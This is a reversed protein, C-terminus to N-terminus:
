DFIEFLWDLADLLEFPAEIADFVDVNLSARENRRHASVISRLQDGTVFVGSCTFCAHIPGADVRGGRLVNKQCRPCAKASLSADPEFGALVPTPTATANRSHRYEDIEDADFWLSGCRPCKDIDVTSM